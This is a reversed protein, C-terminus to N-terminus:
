AASAAGRTSGSATGTAAGPVCSTHALVVTSLVSAPRSLACKHVYADHAPERLNM